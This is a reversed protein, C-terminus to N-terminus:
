SMPSNASPSAGDTPTVGFSNSGDTSPNSGSWLFKSDVKGIILKALNPKGEPTSGQLWAEFLVGVIFYPQSFTTEWRCYTELPRDIKGVTLKDIEGRLVSLSAEDFALTKSDVNIGAPTTRDVRFSIQSEIKPTTDFEKRDAVTTWMKRNGTDSPDSDQNFIINITIEDCQNRWATKVRMVLTDDDLKPVPSPAPTDAPTAAQAM